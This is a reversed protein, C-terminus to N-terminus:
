AVKQHAMLVMKESHRRHAESQFDWTERDQLPLLYFSGNTSLRYQALKHELLYRLHWELCQRPEPLTLLEDDQTYASCVCRSAAIRCRCVITCMDSRDRHLRPGCGGEDAFLSYAICSKCWREAPRAYKYSTHRALMM